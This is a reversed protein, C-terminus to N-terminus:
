VQDPNDTGGDAPAEPAAPPTPPTPPVPPTTPASAASSGGSMRDTLPNRDIVKNMLEDPVVGKFNGLNWNRDLMMVVYVFALGIFLLYFGLAFYGEAEVATIKGILLYSMSVIGLLTIPPYKDAVGVRFWFGFLVIGALTYLIAVIGAVDSNEALHALFGLLALVPVLAMFANLRDGKQWYNQYYYYGTGGILGLAIVLGLIQPIEKIGAGSLAGMLAIDHSYAVLAFITYLQSLTQFPRNWFATGNGYYKKGFVYLAFAVGGGAMLGHGGTMTMAGAIAIVGVLWGLIVTKLNVGSAANKLLFYIIAAFFGWFILVMEEGSGFVQGIGRGIGGFGILEGALGFVQGVYTWTLLATLFLYATLSSKNVFTMTIGFVLCAYGVFRYQDPEIKIEFAPIATILSFTFTLFFFGSSLERLANNDPFKMKYLGYCAGGMLVPLISLLKPTFDSSELLKGILTLLGSLVLMGGILGAYMQILRAPRTDKETMVAKELERGDAPNSVSKQLSRFWNRQIFREM